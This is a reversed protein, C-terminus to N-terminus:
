NRCHVIKYIFIIFDRYVYNLIFAVFFSFKGVLTQMTQLRGNVQRFFHSFTHSSTFYQLSLHLPLLFYIKSTFYPEHYVQLPYNYIHANCNQALYQLLLVNINHCKNHKYIKGYRLLSDYQLLITVLLVFYLLLKNHFNYFLFSLLPMNVIGFYKGLNYYHM